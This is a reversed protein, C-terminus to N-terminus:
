VLSKVKKSSHIKNTNLSRIVNLDIEIIEEIAVVNGSKERLEKLKKFSIYPCIDEITM